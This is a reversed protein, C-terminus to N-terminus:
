IGMGGDVSIVQGTIYRGGEGCLFAVTNAIDEAQGMAKMPISSLIEAKVTDSLKGTMETEIMGPAVANVTIKRGALEKALSKTMGIVGAKSASYNVQGANGRVGVISSINVIRGQRKKLMLGSVERMLYFAGKLNTEIVDDFEEDTMRMLLNDRTIGANNVLVDIRKEGFESAKEVLM